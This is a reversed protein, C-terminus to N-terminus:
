QRRNKSRTRIIKGQINYGKEREPYVFIPTIPFYLWHRRVISSIPIVYFTIGMDLIYMFLFNFKGVFGKKLERKERRFNDSYYRM